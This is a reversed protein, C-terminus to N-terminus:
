ALDRRYQSPTMGTLKKFATNFPSKSNFGSAYAIDLVTNEAQAPDKMAQQAAQIRYENVFLYFNKEYRASIVETLHHRPVAMRKSLTEITLNADLYPRQSQMFTDLRQAIVDAREPSLGSRDYRPKTSVLEQTDPAPATDDTPADADFVRDQQLGFFSLGLIAAILAFLHLDMLNPQSLFAALFLLLFVGTVGATMARLWGLTIHNPLNSYHGVVANAHRDLRRFIAISYALLIGLNIAGVVRISTSFTAVEPNPPVPAWGTIIQVVSVAFFPAFHVLNRSTIRTVDGTLSGVYLWMFPGYTLPYVLNARLLPVKIEPWLQMVAGSVLPLAMLVMWVALITDNLSKTRKNLLFFTTFLAQVSGVFLLHEM